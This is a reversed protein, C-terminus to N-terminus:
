SEDRLSVCGGDLSINFIQAMRQPARGRGGREAITLIHHRISDVELDTSSAEIDYMPAGYLETASSASVSIGIEEEFGLVM